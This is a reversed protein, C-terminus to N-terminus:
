KSYSINLRSSKVMNNQKDFMSLLYMGQQLDSISHKAGDYHNLTKIESGLVNFVKIKDVNSDNSLSFYEQAPNPFVNVENNLAVNFTSSTGEVQVEIPIRYVEITREADGYLVLEMDSNGPTENPNLYVFWHHTTQGMHNPISPSNNLFNPLYCLNNDCVQVDWNEVWTENNLFLEWHMSYVTDVEVTLDLEVKAQFTDKHTSIAVLDPSHSLQGFSNFVIFLTLITFFHKM